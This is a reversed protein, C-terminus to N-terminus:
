KLINVCKRTEFRTIYNSKPSSKVSTTIKYRGWKRDEKGTGKGEGWARGGGRCSSAKRFFTSSPSAFARAISPSSCASRSTSVDSLACRRCKWTPPM